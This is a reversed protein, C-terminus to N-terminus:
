RDPFFYDSPHACTAYGKVCLQRQRKQDAKNAFMKNRCKDSEIMEEIDLASYSEGAAFTMDCKRPRPDQVLVKDYCFDFGSCTIVNPLLFKSRELGWERSIYTIEQKGSPIYVDPYGHWFSFPLSIGNISVISHLPTRLVGINVGTLKALNEPPTHSLEDTLFSTHPTGCGALLAIFTILLIVQHVSFWRSEV